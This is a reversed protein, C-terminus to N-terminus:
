RSEPQSYYPTKKTKTRLPMSRRSSLRRGMTQRHDKCKRGLISTKEYGDRTTYNTILSSGGYKLEFRDRSIGKECITKNTNSIILINFGGCTSAEACETLNLHANFVDVNKSEEPFPVNIFSVNGMLFFTANLCLM